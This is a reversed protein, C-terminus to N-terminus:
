YLKVADFCCNFFRVSQKQILHWWWKKETLNIKQKFTYTSFHVLSDYIGSMKITLHYYTRLLWATWIKLFAQLLHAAPCFDTRSFLDNNWVIGIQRLLISFAFPLFSKSSVKFDAVFALSLRTHNPQIIKDFTTAHYNLLKQWMHSASLSRSQLLWLTFSQFYYFVVYIERKVFLLLM